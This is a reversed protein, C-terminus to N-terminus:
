NSGNSREREALILNSVNRHRLYEMYHDFTQESVRTFPYLDSGMEVSYDAYNAPTENVNLLTGVFTGKLYRRVFYWTKTEGNEVKAVANELGSANHGTNSILGEIDQVAM